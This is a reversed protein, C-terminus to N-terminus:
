LKYELTYINHETEMGHMEIIYDLTIKGGKDDFINTVENTVICFSFPINGLCYTCNQRPFHSDFVLSTLASESRILNVMTPRSKKFRLTSEINSMGLDENEKYTIELVDGKETLKGDTSFEICEDYEKDKGKKKLTYPAANENNVFPHDDINALNTILSRIYIKCPTIKKTVNNM